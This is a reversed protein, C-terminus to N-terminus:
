ESDNGRGCGKPFPERSSQCADPCAFRKGCDHCCLGHKNEYCAFAPYPCKKGFIEKTTRCLNCSHTEGSLLKYADALYSETGCKCNCYFAPRHRDNKGAYAVVVLRGFRDGAKIEKWDKM